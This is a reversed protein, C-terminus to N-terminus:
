QSEEWLGPDIVGIKVAYRILGVQDHIDLKGMINSRHKEVTRPSLCLLQAINKTTQGQAVLRFIQQERETLSDYGSAEGGKGTTAPTGAPALYRRIVEANLRPSLFYEGAAVKRIADIVASGSDTKLVYGTAGASLARHVYAEKDYMSFVVVKAGPAAESLMPVAELGNLNPMSVDLLVVDPQLKRALSVVERGDEAEGVVELGAHGGILQRIGHRVVAHDDTVLVKLKREM